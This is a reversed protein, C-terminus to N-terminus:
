RLSAHGEPPFHETVESSSATGEYFLILDAAFHVVPFVAAVILLIPTLLKSFALSIQPKM